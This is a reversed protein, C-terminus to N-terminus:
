RAGTMSECRLWLARRSYIQFLALDVGVSVYVSM